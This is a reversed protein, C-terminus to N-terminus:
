RHQFYAQSTRTTWSTRVSYTLLPYREKPFTPLFVQSGYGDVEFAFIAGFLPHSVIGYNTIGARIESAMSRLKSDLDRSRQTDLKQMILAAEDLYRAFM